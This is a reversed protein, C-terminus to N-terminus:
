HLNFPLAKQGKQIASWTKTHTSEKVAGSCIRNNKNKALSCDAYVGGEHYNLIGGFIPGFTAPFAGVLTSMLIFASLGIVAIAPVVRLFILNPINIETAKSNM